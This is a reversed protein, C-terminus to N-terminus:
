KKLKKSIVYFLLAIVILQMFFLTWFSGESSVDPSRQQAKKYVPSSGAGPSDAVNFCRGETCGDYGQAGCDINTSWITDYQSCYHEILLNSRSCYDMYRITTDNTYTTVGTEAANIGGDSDACHNASVNKLGFLFLSVLILLGFGYLRKM